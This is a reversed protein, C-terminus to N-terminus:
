GVLFAFFDRGMQHIGTPHQPHRCGRVVHVLGHDHAHGHVHNPCFSPGARDGSLAPGLKGFFARVGM